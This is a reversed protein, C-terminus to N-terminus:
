IKIIGKGSSEDDSGVEVFLYLAGDTFGSVFDSVVVHVEILLHKLELTCCQIM